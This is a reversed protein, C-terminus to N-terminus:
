PCTNEAGDYVCTHFYLTLSSSSKSFTWLQFSVSGGWVQGYPQTDEFHCGACALCVRPIGLLPKLAEVQGTQPSLIQHANFKMNKGQKLSMITYCHRLTPQKTLIGYVPYSLCLKNRGTKPFRLDLDRTIKKTWIHGNKETDECPPLPSPARQPRKNLANIGHRWSGVDLWRWIGDCQPIPKLM